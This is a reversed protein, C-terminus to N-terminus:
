RRRLDLHFLGDAEREDLIRTDFAVHADIVVARKFQQCAAVASFTDTQELCHRVRCGVQACRPNAQRDGMMAQTIEFLRFLMQQLCQQDIGIMRDRQIFHADDIALRRTEGLRPLLVFSRQSDIGAIM